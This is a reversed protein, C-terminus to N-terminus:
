RGKPKHRKRGPKVPRSTDTFNRQFIPPPDDDFYPPEEFDVSVPKKVEAKKLESAPRTSNEQLWRENVLSVVLGSVSLGYKDSLSQLREYTQASVRILVQKKDM